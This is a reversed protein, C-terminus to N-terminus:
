FTLPREAAHGPRHRKQNEISTKLLCVQSSLDSNCFGSLPPLITNGSPGLPLSSSPSAQSNHPPLLKPTHLLDEEVVSGKQEAELSQFSWATLSARFCHKVGAPDQEQQFFLASALLSAAELVNEWQKIEAANRSRDRSQKGLLM